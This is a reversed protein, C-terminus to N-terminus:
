LLVIKPDVAYVGDTTVIIPNIEAQDIRDISQVLQVFGELFTLLQEIAYPKHGRYGSMVKRLPSKQLM